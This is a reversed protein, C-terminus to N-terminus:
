AQRAEHPVARIAAEIESRERKKAGQIGGRIRSAVIAPGRGKLQSTQGRKWLRDITQHDRKYTTTVEAMAAPPVRGQTSAALLHEYIAHREADTMRPCGRGM